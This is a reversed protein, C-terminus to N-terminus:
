PACPSIKVSSRRAPFPVARGSPWHFSIESAIYFGTLPVKADGRAGNNPLVLASEVM